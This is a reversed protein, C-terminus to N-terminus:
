YRMEDCENEEQREALEIWNDAEIFEKMTGFWQGDDQLLLGCNHKIQAEQITDTNQQYKM